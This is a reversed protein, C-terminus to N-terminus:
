AAVKAREEHSLNALRDVEKMDLMLGNAVRRGYDPDAKYFLTTQRLQIRKQAGGLHGVINGILHERDKDTMAKRYLYGAQVFDDNPHTYKQRTAKGTVVLHVDQMLVPGSDGASISNQDDDVPIGFNDTFINKDTTM